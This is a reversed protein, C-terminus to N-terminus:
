FNDICDIDLRNDLLIGVQTDFDFHTCFYNTISNTQYNWSLICCSIVLCFPLFLTILLVHFNGENRILISIFNKIYCFIFFFSVFFLFRSGARLLLVSFLFFTLQIFFTWQTSRHPLWHKNIKRLMFDIPKLFMVRFHSSLRLTGKQM